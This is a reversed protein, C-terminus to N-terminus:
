SGTELKHFATTSVSRCFAQQDRNSSDSWIIRVCVTSGLTCAPFAPVAGGDSPEDSSKGTMRIAAPLEPRVRQSRPWWVDSQRLEDRIAEKPPKQSLLHYGPFRRFAAICVQWWRSRLLGVLSNRFGFFRANCLPNWESPYGSRRSERTGALIAIPIFRPVYDTQNIHSSFGLTWSFPRTMTGM